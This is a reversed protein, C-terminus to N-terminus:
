VKRARYAKDMAHNEIILVTPKLQYKYFVVDQKALAKIVHDVLCYPTGSDKAKIFVEEITGTQETLYRIAEDEDWGTKQCLHRLAANFAMASLEVRAAEFLKRSINM